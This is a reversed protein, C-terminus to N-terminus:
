LNKLAINAPSNVILNEFADVKKILEATEPTAQLPIEDGSKNIMDLVQKITLTEVDRAPHYGIEENEKRVVEILVQADELQDLISKTIVLPISLKQCIEIATPATAGHCFKKICFHSIQLSLLEKCKHNLTFDEVMFEYADMSQFSVTIRAGLLLILWSLQLWVLLLPISAVLGLVPSKSAVHLQIFIYGFQFSQYILGAIIGGWFASFFNVHTNPLFLYLFTFLFSILFYSLINLSFYLIGNIEQSLVSGQIIPVKTSLYVTIAASISLLVPSLFIVAVYDSCRRIFSRSKKAEFIANLGNELHNLIKFTSWLFVLLGLSAISKKSTVELTQEAVDIFKRIIEEQGKFHKILLTIFAEEVFFGRSIALYLTLLPVLSLLTYYTLISAKEQLERKTFGRIVIIFFRLLRVWFAQFTNLSSAQIKWVGHSFFDIIKKIM